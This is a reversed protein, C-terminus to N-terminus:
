KKCCITTRDLSDIKVSECNNLSISGVWFSVNELITKVRPDNPRPNLLYNVWKGDKEELIFGAEKLISLHKSVTSTALNFFDTIECVCLKKKDLMSLIKLRNPDSLAKYIKEANQM